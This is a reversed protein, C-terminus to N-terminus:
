ERVVEHDIESLTQNLGKLRASRNRPNCSISVPFQSSEREPKVITRATTSAASAMCNTQSWPPSYWAIPAAIAKPTPVHHSFVCQFQCSLRLLRNVVRALPPLCMTEMHPEADCLKFRVLCLHHAIPGPIPAIIDNARSSVAVMAWALYPTSKRLIPRHRILLENLWIMEDPLTRSAGRYLTARRM